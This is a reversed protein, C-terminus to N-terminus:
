RELDFGLAEAVEAIPRGSWWAAYNEGTSLSRTEVHDLYLVGLLHDVEHQAIRAPWGTFTWTRSEGHEDLGEVQVSRHRRVYGTLRLVSLCGEFFGVPGREDPVPVLVPNVLVTFPLASRERVALEDPTLHGWREPGDSLVALRISEGIQPAALGVGPAAEMTARMRIILRRVDARGLDGPTLSEARRRLVPDGCQVIPLLDLDASPERTDSTM